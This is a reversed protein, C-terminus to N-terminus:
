KAPLAWSEFWIIALLSLNERKSNDSASVEHDASGEFSHVLM